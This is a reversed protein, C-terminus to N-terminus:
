PITSSFVNALLFEIPPFVVCVSPELDTLCYCKWLHSIGEVLESPNQCITHYSFSEISHAVLGRVVERLSGSYVASGANLGGLMEIYVALVISVLSSSSSFLAISAVPVLISM